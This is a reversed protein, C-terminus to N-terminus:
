RAPPGELPLAVCLVTGAGPAADAWVDGGHARILERALSLAMGLGGVRRGTPADIERFAEFYREVEEAPIAGVADYLELRLQREPGPPGLATRARLRVHSRRISTAASRVLAGVAQVVRRPDVYVPPLGPQLEADIRVDHGEVLASGERLAETLLEVSVVWKRDLTLKGAELRALDLVDTLLRILEEAARRISVVSERQEDSIPGDVGEEMLRAFGVISGLPSRLEHSMSAMFRSRLQRAGEIDERARRDAHARENAESQRLRLRRELAGLRWDRLTPPAPLRIGDADVEVADLYAAFADYEALLSRTRREVYAALGLSAVLVVVGSTLGAPSPAAAPIAFGVAALPAAMRFARQRAVPVSDTAWSAWAREMVVAGLTATATMAWGLAGAGLFIRPLMSATTALITVLAGSLPASPDHDRVQARLGWAAGLIATAFFLLAADLISHGLASYRAIGAMLSTEALCVATVIASVRLTVHKTSKTM